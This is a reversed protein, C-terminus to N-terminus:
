IENESSEEADSKRIYNPILNFVDNNVNEVKSKSFAILACNSARPFNLHNPIFVSRKGLKKKIDKRYIYAGEGVFVTTEDIKKCLDDVSVLQEKIKNVLSLGEYIYVSAFVDGRKADILSCIDYDAFYVNSAVTELSSIGIINTGLSYSLGKAISMGIRLSTFSGPGKSVAILDLKHKSIETQNLLWNIAPVIKESHVPGINILYEGLVTENNLIAVSGSYTSTEIGLIKM